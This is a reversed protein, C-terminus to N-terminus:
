FKRSDGCRVLLLGSNAAAMSRLLEDEPLNSRNCFLRQQQSKLCLTFMSIEQGVTLAAASRADFPTIASKKHLQVTSADIHSKCNNRGM